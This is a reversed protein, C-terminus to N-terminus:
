RNGLFQHFEGKPNIVVWQNFQNLTAIYGKANKLIVKGDVTTIRQTWAGGSLREVKLKGERKSREFSAYVKKYFAGAGESAVLPPRSISALGRGSRASKKEPEQNLSEGTAVWMRDTEQLLPEPTSLYKVTEGDARVFYEKEYNDGQWPTAASGRYIPMGHSCAVIPSQAHENEGEDDEILVSKSCYNGSAPLAWLCVAFSLLFRFPRM